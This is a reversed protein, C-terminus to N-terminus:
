SNLLYDPTLPADFGFGFSRVLLNVVGWFIILFVFAALGYLALSKAKEQETPKDGGYIFYLFTYYVFILIAIGFLFPIIVNNIFSVIGILYIQINMHTYLLGDLNNKNFM